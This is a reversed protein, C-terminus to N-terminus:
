EMINSNSTILNYSANKIRKFYLVTNSFLIIGLDYKFRPIKYPLYRTLGNYPNIHPIKLNPDKAWKAIFKIDSQIM